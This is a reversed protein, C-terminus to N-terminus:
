CHLTTKQRRESRGRFDREFKNNENLIKAVTLWFLKGSIQSQRNSKKDAAMSFFLKPWYEIQDHRLPDCTVRNCCGPNFGLDESIEDATLALSGRPEISGVSGDTSPFYVSSVRLAEARCPPHKLYRFFFFYIANANKKTSFSSPAVALPQHQKGNDESTLIWPWSKCGTGTKWNDVDITTMLVTLWCECIVASKMASPSFLVSFEPNNPNRWIESRFNLESELERWLAQEQHFCGAESSNPISRSSRYLAM